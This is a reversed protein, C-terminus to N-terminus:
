TYYISYTPVYICIHHKYLYVIHVTCTGIYDMFIFYKYMYGDNRNQRINLKFLANLYLM